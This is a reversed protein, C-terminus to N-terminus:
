ENTLLMVKIIAIINSMINAKFFNTPLKSIGSGKSPRKVSRAKNEANLPRLNERTIAHKPREVNNAILVGNTALRIKFFM